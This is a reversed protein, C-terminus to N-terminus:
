VGYAQNYESPNSTRFETLAQSYSLGKDESLKKIKVAEKKRLGLDQGIWKKYANSIRSQKSAYKIYNLENLDMAADIFKLSNKRMEIRAPLIKELYNKVANSTLYQETRGPFGFIMSFDNEKIGSIFIIKITFKSKHKRCFM